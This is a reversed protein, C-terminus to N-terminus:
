DDPNTALLELAPRPDFIERWARVKGADDFELTGMVPFSAILSGDDARVHDVRETIVVREGAVVHVLDVDITALGLQARFGHMLGIAEGKSTTTPLGSQEWRADDALHEDFAAIVADFSHSWAEFFRVASDGHASM